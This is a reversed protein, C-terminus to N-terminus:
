ERAQNTGKAEGSMKKMRKEAARRLSNWNSELGMAKRVERMTERALERMGATGELIVSDVYGKDAEIERRRISIPGLFEELAESLRDKVEGDGVTGARYRAKLEAVLSGDRCFADLYQFVPNGEVTGPIDAHIRRPDTYMSKVKKRVADMDDSLYVCNGLSKSMKTSGDTGMLTPVEGILTEPEPFVEGYLNNFRRAIERTVEIHSENDKGVPVLHARPLLIDASQLVPYNLLGLPMSEESIRAAKAMYKLSPIRALRNTTVLM